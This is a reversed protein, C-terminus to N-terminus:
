ATTHHDAWAERLLEAAKDVPVVVRTTTAAARRFIMLAATCAFLGFLVSRSM